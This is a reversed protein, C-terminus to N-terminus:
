RIIWILIIGVIIFSAGIIRIKKESYQSLKKLVKFIKKPSVFLLLGEFVFLLGLAAIFDHM